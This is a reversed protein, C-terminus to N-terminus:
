SFIIFFLVFCFLLVITFTLLRLSDRHFLTPLLKANVYLIPVTTTEYIYHANQKILIGPWNIDILLPTPTPTTRTRSPIRQTQLLM